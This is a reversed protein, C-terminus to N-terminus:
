IASHQLMEEKKKLDPVAPIHLRAGSADAYIEKVWLELNKKALPWDLWQVIPYEQGVIEPWMVVGTFNSRRENLCQVQTKFNSTKISMDNKMSIGLMVRYANESHLKKVVGFQDNLEPQLTLNKLQIVTGPQLETSKLM